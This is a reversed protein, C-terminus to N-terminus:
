EGQETLDRLRKDLHAFMVRNDENEMFGKYSPSELVAQAIMKNETDQAVALNYDLRDYKSILAYQELPGICTNQWLARHLAPSESRIALKQLFPDNEERVATLTAIDANDFLGLKHAASDYIEQSEEEYIREEEKINRVKDFPNWADPAECTLAEM